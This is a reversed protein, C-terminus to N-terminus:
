VLGYHENIDDMVMLKEPAVASLYSRHTLYHAFTDAFDDIPSYRAVESTVASDSERFFSAMNKKGMYSGRSGEQPNKSWGSANTFRGILELEGEHVMKNFLAHGIAKFAAFLSVSIGKTRGPIASVIPTALYQYFRSYIFMTSTFIRNRAQTQVTILSEGVVSKSGQAELADGSQISSLNISDFLKPYMSHATLIVAMSFKDVQSSVVVGPLSDKPNWSAVKDPSIDGDEFIPLDTSILGAKDAESFTSTALEDVSPAFQGAEYYKGPKGPVPTGPLVPSEPSGIRIAPM